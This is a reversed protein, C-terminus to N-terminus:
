VQHYTFYDCPYLLNLSSALFRPHSRRKRANRERTDTIESNRKRKKTETKGADYREDERETSFYINKKKSAKERQIRGKV